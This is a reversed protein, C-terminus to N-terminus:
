VREEYHRTTLRQVTAPYKTVSHVGFNHVPFFIQKKNHHPEDRACVQLGLAKQLCSSFLDLPLALLWNVPLSCLFVWSLPLLTRSNFPILSLTPFSFSIKGEPVNTSYSPWSPAAEARQGILSEDSRRAGSDENPLDFMQSKTKFVASCRNGDAAPPLGEASSLYSCPPMCLHPAWVAGAGLMVSGLWVIVRVWCCCSMQSLSHNM